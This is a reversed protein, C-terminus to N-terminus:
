ISTLKFLKSIAIGFIRASAYSSPLSAQPNLGVIPQSIFVVEKLTVRIVIIIM